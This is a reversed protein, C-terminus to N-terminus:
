LSEEKGIARVMQSEVKEFELITILAYNALDLLTDKVSEGVTNVVNKGLLRDLRAIKDHMRVLMSVPGFKEFTETTSPGYDNRKKAFITNMDDTLRRFIQLELEM